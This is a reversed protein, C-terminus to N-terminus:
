GGLFLKIEELFRELAPDGELPIHNKGPVAVFRAGAIGAAM